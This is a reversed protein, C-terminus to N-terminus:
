SSTKTKMYGIIEEEVLEAGPSAVVFAVVNEGYTQDPTGVVAAEAVGPYGYLIGELQAPYINEGGRIIMDKVRDVVFLYDDEDLYGIDGTHLWGGSMTEETKQPLNFYGKMVSPGQMVIEGRGGPPLPNNESDFIKLQINHHALGASGPKYPKSSRNASGLGAAETLGYIERIRCGFRSEFSRVVEEPLSSAGCVVEQLSTLDFKDLHPHNLILSLMTPVAPMVTCRHQQILSMFPEPDFWAMQVGFTGQDVLRKPLMYGAVMVGVGFIHAMPMASMSIYPGEWRDFETVNASAQGQAYVNDHTLMVGKPKGTTGSTYMMIAVDGGDIKPLIEECEEELFPELAYERPPVEANDEGGLVLIWKIHELGQVAERIKSLNLVDTVVGEAKSDALIYRIEPATLLFMVPIATAGTRFIGAFVSYILPHNMLFLVINSGKQMGLGSFSRQLRRANDFLQINTYTQGDFILSKFEGHQKIAAEALEAINM